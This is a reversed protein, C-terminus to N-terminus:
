LALGGFPKGSQVENESPKFSFLSMALLACIVFTSKIKM